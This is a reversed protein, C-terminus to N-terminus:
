LDRKLQKVLTLLLSLKKKRKGHKMCEKILDTDLSTIYEEEIRLDEQLYTNLAKVGYINVLKETWLVDILAKTANAMLYTVNGYVSQEIGLYFTIAPVKQYSYTRNDVIIKKSIITVVSEVDVV